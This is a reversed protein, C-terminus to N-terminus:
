ARNRGTQITLIAASTQGSRSNRQTASKRYASPTMGVIKRFAATFHSPSKFGSQWGIDAVPRNTWLLISKTKAIRLRSLHTHFSQGTTKRFFRMFYSPSMHLLSSAREVTIEEGYHADLYASLPKLRHAQREHDDLPGRLGAVGAFHNVLLLLLLRLYTRVALRRRTSDGPLEGAIQHILQLAKAPVGSVAEILPCLTSDQILFPTLYETLEEGSDISTRLIEPEFYLAAIRTGRQGPNSVRHIHDRGVILLDGSGADFAKEGIECTVEGSVVHIFELYSHRNAPVATQPELTIYLVDIPFAKDFGWEHVGQVGIGPCILRNVDQWPKRM